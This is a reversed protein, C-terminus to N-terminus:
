PVEVAGLDCGQEPRAHGLQDQEPCDVGAGQAPSEASFVLAVDDAGLESELLPDTVTFASGCKDDDEAPFVINNGGQLETSCSRTWNGESGNRALISNRVDVVKYGTLSLAGGYNGQNDAFTCNLISAEDDDGSGWGVVAGGDGPGVNAVFTSNQIHIPGQWVVIAGGKRASNDAFLSSRITADAAILIAGGDEGDTDTVANDRFECSEILLTDDEETDSRYGFLFGAGARAGARNGQFTCGCLQKNNGDSFVAGGSDDAENDEFHCNILTLDSLTAHIAGGITSHNGRFESGVVILNGLMPYIAGGGHGQNGAASNDYFRCDEIYLTGRNSYIAGGNGSMGEEEPVELRAGHQFTIGEIAVTAFNAVRVIRTQQGGDLTIAGEGDLFTGDQLVLPETVSISVDGGCDFTVHASTELASRLAAENCSEATGDGVVQEASSTTPRTPADCQPEIGSGGSGSVGGTGSSGGSGGGTGNSSGGNSGDDNSDSSGCGVMAACILAPFLCGRLPAALRLFSM